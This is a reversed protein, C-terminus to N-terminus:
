LVNYEIDYIVSVAKCFGSRHGYGDTVTFIKKARSMIFFDIVTDRISDIDETFVGTHGKKNNWYCLEPILGCLMNGVNNSDTMLVFKDNSNKILPEIKKFFFNVMEYLNDKVKNDELEMTRLHIVNYKTDSTFYYSTLIIEKIKSNIEDNPIFLYRFFMQTEKNLKAFWELEGKDNKYMSNTLLAFDEGEQFLNELLMDIQDYSLPAILEMADDFDDEIFYPASKFFQFIPHINKSIYFDYNYKKSYHYVAIMGRVCDAFGPPNTNIKCHTLYKFICKPKM